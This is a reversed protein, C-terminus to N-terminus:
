GFLIDYTIIYVLEDQKQLVVLLIKLLNVVNVFDFMFQIAFKFLM